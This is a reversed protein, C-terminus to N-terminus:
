LWSSENQFCWTVQAWNNCFKETSIRSQFHFLKLFFNFGGMKKHLNESPVSVIVRNHRMVQICWDCCTIDTKPWDLPMDPYWHPNFEIATSSTSNLNWKTLCKDLKKYTFLKQEARLYFHGQIKSSVADSLLANNKV